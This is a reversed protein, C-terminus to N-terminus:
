RTEEITNDPTPYPGHGIYIDIQYSDGYHYNEKKYIKDECEVELLDCNDWVGHNWFNHSYYGNYSYEPDDTAPNDHDNCYYLRIHLGYNGETGIVWAHQSESYVYIYGYVDPNRDGDKAKFVVDDAMLSLSLVVLALITIIIKKM